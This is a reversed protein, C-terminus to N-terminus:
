KIGKYSPNVENCRPCHKQQEYRYFLGTRGFADGEIRKESYFAKLVFKHGFLYCILRPIM